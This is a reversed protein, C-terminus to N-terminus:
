DRAKQYRAYFFALITSLVLIMVASASAQSFQYNSFALKYTFTSLMETVNIPGGGTTMWILAFQQSTWIVDLMSMSIIIPKLQPLTISWFQQFGSAGDVKAAEYLDKPIGQLGALLSVMYFPYGAWINIFTVAILATAPSSLWEIGKDTLGLSILAYNIVGNPNLLLKWLIAIIAVTFLWPLIYIVRFLGTTVNSLLKTNLMMAFLLGLVLHAIVSVVTFVATNMVATPLVSNTLVKIYSDFGIFQPHKNVIVNDMVSYGVVMAIPIFMLVFLLAATPSIFGYPALRRGLSKTSAGRSVDANIIKISM